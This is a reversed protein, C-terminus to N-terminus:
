LARRLRDVPVPADRDPERELVGPQADEVVVARGRGLAFEPDAPGRHRQAVEAPRVLSRRTEEWALGYGSRVAGSGPVAGAVPDPAAAVAHDLEEAAD